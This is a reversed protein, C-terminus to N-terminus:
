VIPYKRSALLRVLDQTTANGFIDEYGCLFDYFEIMYLPNYAIIQRMRWVLESSRIQKAEWPSIEPLAYLMCRKWKELLGRFEYHSDTENPLRQYDFQVAASVDIKRAFGYRLVVLILGIVVLLSLIGAWEKLESWVRPDFALERPAIIASGIATWCIRNRWVSVAMHKPKSACSSHYEGLHGWEADM